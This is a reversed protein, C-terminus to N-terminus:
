HGLFGKLLGSAKGSNAGLLKDVKGGLAKQAKQQLMSSLDPRYSPHEWPGSILIPVTTGAIGSKGGQLAAAVHPELRYDLTRHYLDVTGSGTVGGVATEMALDHNSAVGGSIAFTAGLASFETQATGADQTLAATPNHVIAALDFGKVAGNAVRLSGTGSLGRMLEAQSNGHSALAINLSGAGVIRSVGVTVELVPQVQIANLAMATELTAGAGSGDLAIHGTGTGGYLTLQKFETRLKGSAIILALQSKGIAVNHFRLSDLSLNLDTDVARLSSLDIPAESWGGGPASPAAIPAAEPHTAAGQSSTVLYPNLDLAGLLLSGKVLPRAGATAVSLDGTATLADLTLTLHSLAYLSAGVDVQTRLSFPGLASGPLKSAPGAWALLGRLSSGSVELKGDLKRLPGVSQANGDLALKVLPADIKLTVPTSGGGILVVPKRIGLDFSLDQNKWLVSGKLGLPEDISDLTLVADLKDAEQRKGTRDDLYSVTANTVKVTGLSLQRLQAEPDGSAKADGAPAAAKGAPTLIWNGRGQRDVELRIVPDTLDLRSVEVRHSLLPILKLGVALRGVSAMAKEVGGPAGSLSVDQAELAINPLLRFSVPGAITLERGTAQKVAETVRGIYANAPILTPVTVVALMLALVLAGLAILLKKM